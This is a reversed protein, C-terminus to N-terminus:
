VLVPGSPLILLCPYQFNNSSYGMHEFNFPFLPLYNQFTQILNTFTFVGHPTSIVKLPILSQNSLASFFSTFKFIHCCFRNLIFCVCFLSHFSIFVADDLQLFFELSRIYIYNSDRFFLCTSPFTQLFSVGWM